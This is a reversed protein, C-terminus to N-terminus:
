QSERWVKGKASECNLAEYRVPESDEFYVIEANPLEKEAILVSASGTSVGVRMGAQNLQERHTIPSEACAPGCLIIALMTAIFVSLRRMTRM